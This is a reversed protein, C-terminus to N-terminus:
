FQRDEIAVTARPVWRSMRKLAVPQRNRESPMVGLLSGDAAYVLTNQGIETRQLSRLDCSSGLALVGAGAALAAAAAALILAITALLAIRKAAAAGSRVVASAAADITSSSTPM